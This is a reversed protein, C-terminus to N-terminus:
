SCCEAMRPERAWFNYGLLQAPLSLVCIMVATTICLVSVPSCGVSGARSNGWQLFWGGLKCYPETGCRMILTLELNQSGRLMPHREVEQPAKGLASLDLSHMKMKKFSATWQCTSLITLACCRIKVSRRSILFFDQYWFFPLAAQSARRQQLQYITSTCSLLMGNLQCQSSLLCFNHLYVIFVVFEGHHGRFPRRNWINLFRFASLSRINPVVVRSGDLQLLM